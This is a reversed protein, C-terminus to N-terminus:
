EISILHKRVSGSETVLQIVYIGKSAQTSISLHGESQSINIRIERGSMDYLKVESINVNEPIQVTFEGNNPNPFVILQDSISIDEISVNNFNVCDSTSTCGYQEVQVKFNGNFAPTFTQQDASPIALNNACNIWQYSDMNPAAVLQTGNFTVSSDPKHLILRISHISDCYSYNQAEYQYLGESFYRRNNFDWQYPLQCTYITDAPLTYSPDCAMAGLFLKSSPNLDHEYGSIVIDVLSDSDILGSSIGYGRQYQINTTKEIFVGSADGFYIKTKPDFLTGGSEFIDAKGDQNLDDVLFKGWPNQDLQNSAATATFNGQSDNWFVRNDISGSNNQGYVLLDLDGDGDFDAPEAGGNSVNQFAAVNHITYTGTSDALYLANINYGSIYIDELSDGNADFAAMIGNPPNTISSTGQSFTGLGNNLHLECQGSLGKSNLIDLDQDQDYDMLLFDGIWHGSSSITQSSSFSGSGNNTLITFDGSSAQSVLDPFGDGSMDGIKIKSMWPFTQSLSFNGGGSNIYIDTYFKDVFTPDPYTSGSIVVDLDQDNDLDYVIVSFGAGSTFFDANVERFVFNSDNQYWNTTVGSGQKDSSFEGSCFLDIRGDLDFDAVGVDGNEQRRKFEHAQSFSGNGDNEMIRTSYNLSALSISFDLDNDNDADLFNINIGFESNTITAYSQPEVLLKETITDQIFVRVQDYTSSACVAVLDNRSDNNLDAAFCVKVNMGGLVNTNDATFVGGNNWYFEQVHTGSTSIDYTILEPYSDGNFDALLVTAHTNNFPTNTSLSFNGSGDNLFLQKGNGFFLDIDGDNDVDGVTVDHNEEVDPFPFSTNSFQLNGQNLSLRNYYNTISSKSDKGFQLIDQLGDNNFDEILIAGEVVNLGNFSVAERYKGTGDNIFLASRFNFSLYEGQLVVDPFGDNNLDGIGIRSEEVAPFESIISPNGFQPNALEFFVEPSQGFSLLCLFQFLLTIKSKM